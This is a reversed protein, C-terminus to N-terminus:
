VDRKIFFYAKVRSPKYGMYKYLKIPSNYMTILHYNHTKMIHILNKERKFASNQRHWDLFAYLATSIIPVQITENRVVVFVGEKKLWKSIRSIFLSEEGSPVFRIAHAITIIDFSSPAFSVNLFNSLRLHVNPKLLFRKKAAALMKKSIDVGIIDLDKRWIADIMAGSGCALDLVKKYPLSIKKVIDKLINVRRGYNIYSDYDVYFDYINGM